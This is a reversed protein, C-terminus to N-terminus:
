AAEPFLCTRWCPGLRAGGSRISKGWHLRGPWASAYQFGSRQLEIPVWASTPAHGSWSIQGFPGYGIRVGLLIWGGDDFANFDLILLVIVFAGFLYPANERLEKKIIPWM